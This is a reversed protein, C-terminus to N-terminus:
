MLLPRSGAASWAGIWVAFVLEPAADLRRQIEVVSEDPHM